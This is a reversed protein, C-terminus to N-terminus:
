EQEGAEGGGEEEEEEEHAKPTQLQILRVALWTGSLCRTVFLNIETSSSLYVVCCLTNVNQSSSWNLNEEEKEQAGGGAGRGGGGVGWRCLRDSCVSSQSILHM